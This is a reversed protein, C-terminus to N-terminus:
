LGYVHIPNALTTVSLTYQLPYLLSSGMRTIFFTVGHALILESEREKNDPSPYGRVETGVARHGTCQRQLQDDM